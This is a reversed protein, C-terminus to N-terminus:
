VNEDRYSRERRSSRENRSSRESRSSRSGRSSRENQSSRENRSSRNGRSSSRRDGRDNRDLREEGRYKSIDYSEEERDRRRKSPGSQMRDRSTRITVRGSRRGKAGGQRSTDRIEYTKFMEESDRERDNEIIRTIVEPKRNLLKLLNELQEEHAPLADIAIYILKRIANKDNNSLDDEYALYSLYSVIETGRRETIKDTSLLQAVAEFYDDRNILGDVYNELTDFDDQSKRIGDFADHSKARKIVRLFRIKELSSRYTIPSKMVSNIDEVFSIKDVGVLDCVDLGKTLINIIRMWYNPMEKLKLMTDNKKLLSESIKDRAEAPSLESAHVNQITLFCVLFLQLCGIFRLKM